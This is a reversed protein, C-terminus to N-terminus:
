CLLQRKKMQSFYLDHNTFQFYGKESEFTVKKINANKDINFGVSNQHQFRCMVMSRKEVRLKYSPFSLVDNSLTAREEVKGNDQAYAVINFSHDSIKASSSQTTTPMKDRTMGYSGVGM